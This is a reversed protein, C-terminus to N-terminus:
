GETFENVQDDYMNNLQFALSDYEKRWLRRLEDPTNDSARDLREKARKVDDELQTRTSM